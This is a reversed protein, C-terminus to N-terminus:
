TLKSLIFDEIAKMGEAAGSGKMSRPFMIYGHPAGPIIKVVAEGGAMLWKVSMFM